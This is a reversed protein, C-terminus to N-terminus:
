APFLHSELPVASNVQEGNRAILTLGDESLRTMEIDFGTIGDGVGKTWSVLNSVNNVWQTNM